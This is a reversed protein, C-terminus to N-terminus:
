SSKFKEVQEEAWALAKERDTFFLVPLHLSNVINESLLEMGLGVVFDKPLVIAGSKIIKNIGQKVIEEIFWQNLESTPTFTSNETYSLYIYPKYKKIADFGIQHLQKWKEGDKPTPKWDEIYLHKEDDIFISIYEDDHIKKLM